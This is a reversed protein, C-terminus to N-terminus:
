VALGGDIAFVQGTIYAADDGALFTVMAAVEEPSGYRKLPIGALIQEQVEDKLADTMETKIFGPAIANATVSRSAMEKALSKTLGILGAKSAAYNAQGANGTIGIVSAITVVRGANSKTLPRFAAKSALFASKLNVNIVADWDSEKMRMLLGDRTIGVNNVLIDLGGFHQVCEKVAATVQDGNTMDAIQAKAAEGLDNELRTANEQNVDTFFVKAGAGALRRVIAEGIGRAGGSVFAVRGELSM